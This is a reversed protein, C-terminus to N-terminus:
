EGIFSGDSDNGIDSDNIEDYVPKVTEKHASGYGTTPNLSQELADIECTLKSIRDCNENCSIAHALRMKLDSLKVRMAEIPDPSNVFKDLCYSM